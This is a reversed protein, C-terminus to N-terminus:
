AAVAFAPATNNTAPADYAMGTVPNIVLSAQLSNLRIEAHCNDILEVFRIRNLNALYSKFGFTQM